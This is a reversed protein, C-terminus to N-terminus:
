KLRNKAMYSATDQQYNGQAAVRANQRDELRTNYSAVQNAYNKNWQNLSNAMQQKILKNQQMGNYAGWLGAAGQLGGMITSGYQSNFDRLKDAFGPVATPNVQATDAWLMNPNEMAPSWAVLGTTPNTYNGGFMVPNNPNSYTAPNNSWSAMDAYPDTFNGELMGLSFPRYTNPNYESTMAHM